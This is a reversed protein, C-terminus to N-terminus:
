EIGICIYCKNYSNYLDLEIRSSTRYAIRCAHIIYLTCQVSYMTCHVIYVDM